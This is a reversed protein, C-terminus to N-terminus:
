KYEIQGTASYEYVVGNITVTGSYNYVGNNYNYKYDYAYTYTESKYKYTISGIYTYLYDNYSGNRYVMNFKFSGDITVGKYSYNDFTYKSYASIPTSEVSVTNNQNIVETKINTYSELLVSSDSNKMKILSEGSESTSSEVIKCESLGQSYAIVYVELFEASPTDGAATSSYDYSYSYDSGDLNYSGSYISGEFTMDWQYDMVSGNYTIVFDGSCSGKAVGNTVVAEYKATGNIVTSGNAFNNYTLDAEVTYNTSNEATTTGTITYGNESYNINYSTSVSRISRSNNLVDEISSEISSEVVDAVVLSIEEGTENTETEEKSENDSSIECGMFLLSFIFVSFLIKVKLMKVM